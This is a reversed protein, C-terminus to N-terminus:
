KIKPKVIVKSGEFKIITVETKPDIYSGTSKAELVIDNVRIKGIPSLRSICVGVDGPKIKEENEDSKISGAVNTNLMFRKWTRSRLAFTITFITAIITSALTIHGVTSGYVDYAWYIGGVLCAIGGIGAVTVGPVLLFEVIFLFLGIIILIIVGAM